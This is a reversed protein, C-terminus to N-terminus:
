RGAEDPPDIPRPVRNHVPPVSRLYAFVAGLDDDTLSGVFKYPMPPLIPRGHGEHRGTRMARFFMEETWKGLGTEQDPTLNATFSIGWPGGWATMTASAAALWPGNLVPPEAVAIDGPHGSLARTMDPEPGKPGMVHPTHCDHCMGFRVLYEGRAVREPSSTAAAGPRANGARAAAGSGFTGVLLLSAFALLRRQM